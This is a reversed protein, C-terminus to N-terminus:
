GVMISLCMHMMPLLAFLATNISILSLNISKNTIIHEPPQKFSGM